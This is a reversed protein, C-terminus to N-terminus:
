MPNLTTPYLGEIGTTRLQLKLPQLQVITPIVITSILITSLLEALSFGKNTLLAVEIGATTRVYARVYARLFYFLM